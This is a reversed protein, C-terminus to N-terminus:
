PRRQTQLANNADTEARTKVFVLQPRRRLNGRLGGPDALVGFRISEELVVGSGAM